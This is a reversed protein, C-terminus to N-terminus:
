IKSIIKYKSINKNHTKNFNMTELWCHSEFSGNYNRIGIVLFSQYGKKLLLDRLALSQILCSKILLLKFIKQSIKIIELESLDSPKSVSVGSKKILDNFNIIKKLIIFKCVNIILNIILLSKSIIM